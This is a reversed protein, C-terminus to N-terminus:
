SRKWMQGVIGLCVIWAKEGGWSPNRAQNACVCKFFDNVKKEIDILMIPLFIGPDKKNL